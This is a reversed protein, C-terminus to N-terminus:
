VLFYVIVGNIKVTMEWQTRESFIGNMECVMNEHTIKKNDELINKEKFLLDIENIFNSFSSSSSSSSSALIFEHNLNKNNESVFHQYFGVGSFPVFKYFIGPGTCFL